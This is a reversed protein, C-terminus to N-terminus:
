ECSRYVTRGEVITELVKFRHDLIVIDADFGLALRGKTQMGLVRAPTDTAMQVAEKLPIGVKEVMNLVAEALGISSGAIVGSSLRILGEELQYVRGDIVHEGDSLGAPKICDSVLVVREASKLKVTLGLVIPHIHQCDAILEVVVNPDALGAGLVGPERQHIGRMGNWLHTIMTVGADFAQCSELFTADTHGASVVIGYTRLLKVADLGGKIEPALTVIKLSGDAAELIEKLERISSERIYERQAGIREANIYPGELHSGLVRAGVFTAKSAQKVKV